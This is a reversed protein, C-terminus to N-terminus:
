VLWGILMGDAVCVTVFVLSVVLWSVLRVGERSTVVSVMGVLAFFLSAVVGFLVGADVEGRQRKRGTAALTAIIVCIVASAALTLSTILLRYSTSPAPVATSSAPDLLAKYASFKRAPKKQGPVHAATGYSRNKSRRPRPADEDTDTPTSEEEEENHPSLLPRSEEDEPAPQKQKNFLDKLKTYLREATRQGLFKDSANPDVYLYYANEDGSGEEPHDYESWYRPSKSQSVIAEHKLLAEQHYNVRRQKKPLMAASFEQSETPTTPISAASSEGTAVATSSGTHDDSTTSTQNLTTQVQSGNRRMKPVAEPLKRIDRELVPLKRFILMHALAFSPKTKGLVASEHEEAELMGLNRPKRTFVWSSARDKARNTPSTQNSVLTRVLHSKDLLDIISKALKGEQRVELVAYPFDTADRSINAAWQKGSLDDQSVKGISIHSDLVCWQGVSLSNALGIFRTRKSFIGVLPQVERHRKLMERAEDPTFTGRLASSSMGNGPTPSDSAKWPAFDQDVNLLAGLQKKKVRATGSSAEGKPQRLLIVAEDAAGWRAIAKPKPFSRGTSDESDSVTSRSQRQAYDDLQDLIIV